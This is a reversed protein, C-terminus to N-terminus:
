RKYPPPPLPVPVPNAQVWIVALELLRDTDGVGSKLQAIIATAQDIADPSAPDGTQIHAPFAAAMKRYDADWNAGGNDQIEISIRGSIRIVEGQVTAASGSSPVLLDWLAKHQEPWPAPPVVIPSVGDHVIRRQVPPVDFLVYLRELAAVTADLSDANFNSRHFEFAQGLATIFTKMRPTKQAGAALLTEALPVMRILQNNSCGRLALELPTLGSGNLADVQAGRDLLLRVNAPHYGEAAAHLPTANSASGANPDAGLDLLVNIRGQWHRSRTHLPTNGRTDTAMLDAGEAVLWRALEDPCDNFALATQNAYGGRADLDHTAFIAKLEALDGSKLSDEFTKPLRKKKPKPVRRGVPKAPENETTTEAVPGTIPRAKDAPARPAKTSATPAQHHFIARILSALATAITMM